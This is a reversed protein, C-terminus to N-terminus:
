AAVEVKHERKKNAIDKNIALVAMMTAAIEPDGEPKTDVINSLQELLEALREKLLPMSDGRASFEEANKAFEEPNFSIIREDAEGKNNTFKETESSEWTWGNARQNFRPRVIKMLDNGLFKTVAEDTTAIDPAMYWEGATTGKKTQTPVFTVAQENRTVTVSVMGSPVPITKPDIKKIQPDTAVTDSM